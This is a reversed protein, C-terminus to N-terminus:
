EGKVTRYNPKKKQWLILWCFLHFNVKVFIHWFNRKPFSSTREAPHKSNFSCPNTHFVGTFINFMHPNKEVYALVALGFMLLPLWIEGGGKGWQQVRHPLDGFVYVFSIGTRFDWFFGSLISNFNWSSNSPIFLNQTKM